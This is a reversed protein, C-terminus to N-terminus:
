QTHELNGTFHGSRQGLGVLDDDQAAFAATHGSFHGTQQGFEGDRHVGQGAHIQGLDPCRQLFNQSNSDGTNIEM